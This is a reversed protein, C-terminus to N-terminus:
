SKIDMTSFDGYYMYSGFRRRRRRRWRRRRKRKERWRRSRRRKEKEAEEEEREEEEDEEEEVTMQRNQLIAPHASVAVGVCSEEDSDHVTILIKMRYHPPTPPMTALSDAGLDAPVMRDLTRAGSGAGQDSPPGSLRLNGQQPSAINLFGFIWDNQLSM